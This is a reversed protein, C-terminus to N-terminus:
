DLEKVMTTVAAFGLWRRFYPTATVRVPVFGLREYLQFARPNTDVVDLSVQNFGNRRAFAFVAHLLQTGVGRGRWAADVALSEVHFEDPEASSSLPLLLLLKVLGRVRGYEGMLTAARFHVFENGGYQLGCLGCVRGDVLAVFAHQPNCDAAIVNVAHEATGLINSLKQQFASYYIVAADRRLAHPLGLVIDVPGAVSM